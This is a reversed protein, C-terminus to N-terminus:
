KNRTIKKINKLTSSLDKDMEYAKGEALFSNVRNFAMQEPTKFASREEYGRSYVELLTEIPIGANEAKIELSEYAKKSIKNDAQLLQRIRNFLATDNLVYDLLKDLVHAAATRYIINNFGVTPDQMAIRYYALKRLDDTLGAQLLMTIRDIPKAHSIM